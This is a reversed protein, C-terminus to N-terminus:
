YALLTPARGSVFPRRRTLHCRNVPFRCFRFATNFCVCARRGHVFRRARGSAAASCGATAPGLIFGICLGAGMLRFEARAPAPLRSILLTSIRSYLVCRGARWLRGSSCGRSNCPCACSLYDLLARAPRVVAGAAASRDSLHGARAWFFPMLAYVVHCGARVRGGQGRECRDVGHDARCCRRIIIGSGSRDVLVAIFVFVYPRQSRSQGCNM